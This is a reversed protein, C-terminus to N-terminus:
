IMFLKPMLLTGSDLHEGQKANKESYSLGLGTSERSDYIMYPVPAEGHAGNKMYTMHDSLVLVRYDESRADLGLLVNRLVLESLCEIAFIKHILDNNHTAEDPGELHIAAFDHENLINLAARAKASYDTDWEGTATKVKVAGLGVLRAIGRCLPVASVTAGTSFRDTFSPLAAGKGEAWFWICNAPLLNRETRKKNIPHNSLLKFSLSMLERMVLANANGEPLISCIQEGLHDHPPYLVISDLDADEQVALHRFSSGPRISIKAEKALKAFESQEFLWTVLADSEEGEISGASHSIMKMDSFLDADGGLSVMNCRYAAGGAPLFGGSDALELPARGSLYITPDCGFISMIATDSGAPMGHPVTRVTGIKGKECLMDLFPKKAAELPTINGLESIPEDAMGDGIILLYKM